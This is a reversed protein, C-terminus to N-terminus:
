VHSKGPPCSKSCVSVPLTNNNWQIEKRINLNSTNDINGIWEGVEVFKYSNNIHQLNWLSYEVLGAGSEDFFIRNGETDLFDVTKLKTIFKSWDVENVGRKCSTKNCELFNNLAHAVAYVANVTSTIQYPAFEYGPSKICESINRGICSNRKEFEYFERLWGHLPPKQNVLRSLYEHFGKVRSKRPSVGLM